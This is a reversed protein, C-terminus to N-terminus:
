AARLEARFSSLGGGMRYRVRAEAVDGEALLLEDIPLVKDGNLANTAGLVLGDALHTRASIRIANVLGESSIPIDLRADVASEIPERLDLSRVRRPGSRPHFATALWGSGGDGLHPWEHKPAMVKCGYYDFDTYGLEVFTDYWFPILRTRDTIVGRERLANLATVQLEDMLGTDMMECIFVDVDRPLPALHIDAEIVEVVRELRNAHVSRRLCSALFPDVEVACVRAAGARAAFLSLIGSGAGADVVVDGPGVVAQIASRFATTRKVDVLCQYPFDTNSWIEM